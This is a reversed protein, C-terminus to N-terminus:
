GVLWLRENITDFSSVDADAANVKGLGENLGKGM